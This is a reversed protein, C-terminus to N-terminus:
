PSPFSSFLLLFYCALNLFFDPLYTSGPPVDEGLMTLIPSHASLPFFIIIIIIIFFFWRGGM